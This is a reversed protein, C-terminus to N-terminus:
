GALLRERLAQLRERAKRLDEHEDAYTATGTELERLRADIASQADEIRSKLRSRDTELVAAEYLEQWKPLSGMRHRELAPQGAPASRGYLRLKEQRGRRTTVREELIM